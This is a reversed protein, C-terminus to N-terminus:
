GLNALTWDVIIEASSFSFFLLAVLLLMQAISLHDLRKFRTALLLGVIYFLLFLVILWYTSWGRHNIAFYFIGLGSKESPSEEGQIELSPVDIIRATWNLEPLRDKDAINTVFLLVGVQDGPNLLTPNMSFTNTTVKNWEVDLETPYTRTTDVTLLEGEGQEITVQLPKIYDSPLIPSRGTNSLQYYYVRTSEVAVGDIMLAIREDMTEGFLDHVPDFHFVERVTLASFQVSRQYVDYTVVISVIIAAVGIAISIIQWVPDPFRLREIANKM